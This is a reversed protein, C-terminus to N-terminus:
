RGGIINPQKDENITRTGAVRRELEFFKSTTSDYVVMIYDGLATPTWAATIESFKGSKAITTANTLSGCELVYAVGEKASSFDTLATAGSNAITTFWWNVTTDATTDDADLATAPKNCFVEQLDYDNAQLLALSAFPKGVYSASFGEKWLSWAKVTEMEQEFQINLMEGPLYELCQFNGPKAAVILKHSGMNPVWIIRIDTDQVTTDNVRAFDNDAAYTSRYKDKYWQRHNKNLYIAYDSENFDEVVERIKAVFSEVVSLMTDSAYTALEADDFPLIKYENIYRLVSYIYGTSGHLKHGAQNAVPKVGIGKIRRDNQEQVLKLGIQLVLWEIMTWKPDSSGEQNLYAIYTKEIWKLSEFKTKMMVDDVYGMEPKLEVSGKWVEGTQYGQSFDGLFANTMLDRDQVGYRRPFIDYVNQKQLIRAVLMNQRLIVFQDGLGADSLGTRTVDLSANLVNEDNLARLNLKGEKQLARMRHMLSSGYNSVEKKLEEYVQKPNAVETHAADTNAFIRNWRKKMSFLDHNVGFLHTSTHGAGLIGIKMKETKSDDEEVTKKLTEVTGKLEKNEKAMAEIRETLDITKTETPKKANGATQSKKTTQQENEEHRDGESNTTENEEQEALLKIASDYKEAKKKEAQYAEFDADLNSNYLEEWKAAVKEHEEATLDQAKKEAGFVAVIAAKLKDIFDKM